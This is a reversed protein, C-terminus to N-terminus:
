EQAREEQRSNTHRTERQIAIARPMLEAQRPRHCGRPPGDHGGHEHDEGGGAAVRAGEPRRDRARRRPRGAGAGVARPARPCAVPRQACPVVRRRRVAVPRTDDKPPLAHRDRAKHPAASARRSEFRRRRADSRGLVPTRQHQVRLLHDLSLQACRGCICVHKREQRVDHERESPVAGGVSNSQCVRVVALANQPPHSGFPQCRAIRLVASEERDHNSIGPPVPEPCCILPSVAYAGPNSTFLLRSINTFCPCTNAACLPILFRVIIRLLRPYVHCRAEVQRVRVSRPTRAAAGPPPPHKAPVTHARVAQAHTPMRTQTSFRWTEAAMYGPVRAAAVCGARGRV